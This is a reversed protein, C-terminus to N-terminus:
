VLVPELRYPLTFVISTGRGAGSEAHISGGHLQIIHKVISLGLGTGGRERSRGKDVRYFRGFIFPLNKDPIGPGDDIVSCVVQDEAEDYDVRIELKTFDPAYRFANEILNDLVQNLRFRDFIFEGVREDYSLIMSQRKPDLRSRYNEVTEELLERFSQAVPELQDPKSELRSLTLLDEVLLNLREANSV